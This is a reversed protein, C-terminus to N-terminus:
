GARTYAGAALVGKPDYTSVVERLRALTREDYARRASLADHPVGFNPWVGGTDWDGLAAFIRDAHVLGTAASVVDTALGVALVSFRAARHSFASPYAGERAYAGGLHRVEVMAQPSGSGYGAVALLREAAEAPFASLLIAPDTVPMPEVPDAHVADIEPYPRLRADDLIVPAVSRLEDLHRAGEEPSGTWV